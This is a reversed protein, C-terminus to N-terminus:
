GGRKTLLIEGKPGISEHDINGIMESIGSDHMTVGYIHNAEKLVIKRLSVNIFQSHQSKQKIMRSVTEANVGDLFMDVEDLVYFPSPDYEQVAFIFALSAISKEGGSLANLHLIKKGRPRAKISLGHEFVNQEDEIILEAEGGESLSSYIQKFNKNVADFIEFFRERKKGSVENVLKLLNKQQEKLHVVDEDFRKKREMQHEYEDLARMNVPELEQMTEEIGRITEKLSEIGPLKKSHLEINYLAIEKNLDQISEELTPLRYKARSILDMYSENRTSIKDLENEITITKKYIDDRQSALQKVKGTMQEEVNMLAKREDKQCFRLQKLEKIQKENHEIDNSILLIRQQIEEKRQIVLEKKKDFTEYESRLTLIKDQIDSINQEHTRIKQAVEKKTGKLLHKGKEQKIADLEDLRQQIEYILDILSQRKTILENKEKLKEQIENKIMDLKKSYEKKRLEIDKCFGNHEIETKLGRITIEIEEIEKKLISLEDSVSEYSKETHQLADSVEDLKNADIVGFSLHTKPTSGGIMAGSAEILNGKLDVLRVDGMLRRADTLTDVIITDGFVYWFAGKYEEKFKVLDFAFGHSKEDKVAMLAKARPKGVIMKNLPLFTARGLKRKQLYTIAEAAAADDDVVISQMRAGAAIELSTKYKDDVSALEAITGRIRKLEGSNRAAIISNVAANYKAYVSQMADYEAQLKSHERQLKLITKELDSRQETLDSERRKKEFLQKEI